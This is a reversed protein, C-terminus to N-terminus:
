CFDQFFFFEDFAAAEIVLIDFMLISVLLLKFGLYIIFVWPSKFPVGFKNVVFLSMKHYFNDHISTFWFFIFKNFVNVLLQIAVHSHLPMVIINIEERANRGMLGLNCRKLLLPVIYYRLPTKSESRLEQFHRSFVLKHMFIYSYSIM